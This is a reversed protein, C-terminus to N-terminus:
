KKRKSSKVPAVPFATAAWHGPTPGNFKQYNLIGTVIAAAIMKRYGADLIRRGETPHTM